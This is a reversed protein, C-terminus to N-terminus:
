AQIPTPRLRRNVREMRAMDAEHAVYDIMVRNNQEEMAKKQEEM